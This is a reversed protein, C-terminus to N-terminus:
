AQRRYKKRLPIARRTDVGGPFVIRSTNKKTDFEKRGFPTEIDSHIAVKNKESM